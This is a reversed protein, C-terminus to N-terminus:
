GAPLASRAGLCSEKGAAVGEDLKMVDGALRPLMTWFELRMLSARGEDRSGSFAPSTATPSTQASAVTRSSVGTSLTALALYM